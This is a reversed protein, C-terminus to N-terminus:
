FLSAFSLTLLTGLKINVEPNSVDRMKLFLAFIKLQFSNLSQWIAKRNKTIFLFYFFFPFLPFFSFLIFTHILLGFPFLFLRFCCLVFFNFSLFLSDLANIWAVERMWAKKWVNENMMLMFFHFFIAEHMRM